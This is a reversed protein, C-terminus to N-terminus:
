PSTCRTSGVPGFLQRKAEAVYANGPGTLLYVPDITETGLALAAIAQVGGLLYIEDAVRHVGELDVAVRRRPAGAHVVILKAGYTQAVSTAVPLAREAATSGDTARLVTKFM